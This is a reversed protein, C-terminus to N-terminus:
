GERDEHEGDGEEGNENGEKDAKDQTMAIVKGSGADVKVDVISNDAKVVEIDYFLFGNEDGLDAKLVNGQVQSTAKQIAQDFSLKALAPFDAEAQNGLKITGNHIENDNSKAFSVGTIVLSAVLAGSGIITVLQKKM